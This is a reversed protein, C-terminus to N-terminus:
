KHKWVYHVFNSKQGNLEITEQDTKIRSFHNRELVIRSAINNNTTKAYVEHIHYNEAKGLLLRVAHSAIGKGIWKEGVRYGLYGLQKETKIDILNIRGVIQKETNRILYFHSIGENQEQLLEDLKYLFTDYVYYDEGRSPVTKEFFTRNYCEFAFLEEADQKKIKEIYIEM